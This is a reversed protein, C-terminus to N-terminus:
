CARDRIRMKRGFIVSALDENRKLTLGSTIREQVRPSGTVISTKNRGLDRVKRM